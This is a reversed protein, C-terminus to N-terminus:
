SVKKNNREHLWGDFATISNSYLTILKDLSKNKFIKMKNDDLRNPVFVLCDRNIDDMNLNLQKFKMHYYDMNNNNKDSYLENEPVGKLRLVKAMSNRNYIAARHAIYENVEAINQLILPKGDFSGMISNKSDALIGEKTFFSSLTSAITTVIKFLRDDFYNEHTNLIFSVEDSAMVAGLFVQKAISPSKRHLVYYTQQIAKIMIKQFRKNTIEDKLYKKSMGIGDLRVVLYHQHPTSVQTASEKEIAKFKDHLACLQKIKNLEEM